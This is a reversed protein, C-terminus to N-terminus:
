FYKYWKAILTKKWKVGDWEYGDKYVTGNIITCSHTSLKRDRCDSPCPPIEVGNIVIRDDSQIIAQHM